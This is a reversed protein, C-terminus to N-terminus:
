VVRMSQESKVLHVIGQAQWAFRCRFTWFHETGGRNEASKVEVHQKAGCRRVSKSCRLKWCAGLSSHKTCKSKSIHKTGCRFASTRCGLKLFTGFSIHKTCKSNSIHKAGRPCRQVVELAGRPCRQPVERSADRPCRKELDGSSSLYPVRYPRLCQQTVNSPTSRATHM